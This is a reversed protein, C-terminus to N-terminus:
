AVRRVLSIASLCIDRMMLRKDDCGVVVGAVWNRVRNM